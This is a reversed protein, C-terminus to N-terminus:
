FYLLRDRSPVGISSCHHKSANFKRDLYVWFEDVLQFAFVDDYSQGSGGSIGKLEEFIEPNYKRTIPEFNAEKLFAALFKNPDDNTM